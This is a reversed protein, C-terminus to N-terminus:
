GTCRDGQCHGRQHGHPQPQLWPVVLTDVSSAGGRVGPLPVPQPNEAESILQHSWLWLSLSAECGLDFSTTRGRAQPYERSSPGRRKCRALRGAACLGDVPCLGLHPSVPPFRSAYSPSPWARRGLRSSVPAWGWAARPGAGPSVAPPPVQDDWSSLPGLIPLRGAALIWYLLRFQCKQHLSTQPQGSELWFCSVSQKSPVSRAWGEARLAPHGPLWGRSLGPTPLCAGRVQYTGRGADPPRPGSRGGKRHEPWSRGM